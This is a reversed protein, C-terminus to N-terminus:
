VVRKRDGTSPLCVFLIETQEPAVARPLRHHGEETVAPGARVRGHSCWCEGAEGSAAVREGVGGSGRGTWGIRSVHRGEPERFRAMRYMPREAIVPPPEAPQFHEAIGKGLLASLTLVPHLVELSHAHLVVVLRELLEGVPVVHVLGRPQPVHDLQTSQPCFSYILIGAGPTIRLGMVGLQRRIRDIARLSPM